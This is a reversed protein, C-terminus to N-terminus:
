KEGKGRMIGLKKMRAELTTPKLGLIAAAGKDGSVRWNTQDLINLIHQREMKELTLANGSDSKNASPTLWDIPELESGESLIVAREIVHELERVNGPWSYHQLAAMMREPIKEIKKGLNTAHKQVFYQVLLPIDDERERLAPLHVPFVNLRYYLDPRYQGTKSLQELNRNTAAIVRVNVQLVRLLKSQLDLPLEGIEDLFITGKDAVEFRGMKRTLAGTFAGKEHGFLESEILGAPIAACNVKVLARTKRPSLNHIARAILEKGTGTEGTILVTSDTPAVREISKLVKKLSISSGIVEEFNHTVKIEEQLYIAQAELRAKEREMLVQETIDIFM